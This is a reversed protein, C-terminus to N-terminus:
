TDHTLKLGQTGVELSRVVLEKQLFSSDGAASDSLLEPNTRTCLCVLTQSFEAGRAEGWHVRLIAGLVKPIKPSDVM